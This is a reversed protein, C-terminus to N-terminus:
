LGREIMLEFRLVENRSMAVAALSPSSGFVGDPVNIFAISPQALRAIRSFSFATTGQSANRLASFRESPALPPRVALPTM